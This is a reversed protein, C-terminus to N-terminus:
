AGERGEEPGERSQRMLRRPLFVILYVGSVILLPVLGVLVIVLPRIGGQSSPAGEGPGTRGESAGQAVTADPTRMAETSAPPVPETAVGTAPPSETTVARDPEEGAVATATVRDGAGDPATPTTAPRDTEGATPSSTPSPTAQPVTTGTPSPTASPPSTPRETASVASTPSPTGTSPATAAETPTATSTLSPTASPPVTAAETPQDPPAGGSGVTVQGHELRPSQQGVGTDAVFVQHLHLDTTGAGTAEFTVVALSGSGDPGASGGMSAAAFGVTGVENDIEPSVSFTRRGTSGLYGGEEVSVAQVVTPDYSVRFEYGGLDAADEIVVDATFTAGPDVAQEAPDIAVLPRSTQALLQKAPLISLSVALLLFIGFRRIM